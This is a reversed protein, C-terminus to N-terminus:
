LIMLVLVSSHLAFESSKYGFSFNNKLLTSKNVDYSMSYGALWGLHGVVAAGHVTTGSTVYDVDANLSVYERKYTTKIQANRKGNNPSFNVNFAVKLGKVFQDEFTLETSLTNATNWKEIFTM